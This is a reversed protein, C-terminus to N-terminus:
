RPPCCTGLVRQVLYFVMDSGFLGDEAEKGFRGARSMEIDGDGGEQLGKDWRRLVSGVFIVQYVNLLTQRSLWCGLLGQGNVHNASELM